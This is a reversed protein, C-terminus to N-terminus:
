EDAIKEAFRLYLRAMESEPFAEVVTKRSAEAEQVIKDRPFVFAVQTEMEQAAKAVTEDEKEVNKKNLILGKVRAYGLRGQNKVARVINDAAYLSMMEGSTVVYLEDAYGNRIPMAFGGCVVDGLVDYLVFDPRYKEYVSLSDLQEFAAIIGRGACGTGPFPGGAEVLFVGDSGEKVFEKESQGGGRRMVDLVTEIREGGNHLITSDSKPDCGIQFVRYGLRALAAAVNSVTTSKGIGGKGYFAIKKM